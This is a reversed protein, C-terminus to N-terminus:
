ETDRIKTLADDIREVPIIKLGEIDQKPVDSKMTMSIAFGLKVAERLREQGRPAPGIEGPWASRASRCWGTRSWASRCCALAGKKTVHGVMIITISSQKAFRTLQAACERVQAVSGPASSLADSYVTQISDIVAVEPKYEALTNFIRELQIEAQLKLDQM